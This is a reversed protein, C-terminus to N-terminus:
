SAWRAETEVGAHSWRLDPLPYFCEAQRAPHCENGSARPTDALCNHLPESRATSVDNHIVPFILGGCGCSYVQLPLSAYFSQRNLCVNRPNHFRLPKNLFCNFMESAQIEQNAVSSDPFPVGNLRDRFFEPIF